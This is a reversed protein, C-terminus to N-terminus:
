GVLSPCTVRLRSAEVAQTLYDLINRKQLKLTQVVTLIREVFRCGEESRNGYSSKRWIVAPRVSREAVNNTPEVGEERAFTWLAEQLKLVRGCFRATKREPGDRGKRLIKEMKKKLSEMHEVLRKRGMKGEQFGAWHRFVEKSLRLGSKGTRTGQKTGGDVLGQLDRILHAWCLQRQGLAIPTYAGFRDSGVIGQVEDGLLKKMADQDRHEQIMYLAAKPSVATWLWRLKGGLFWGTEDANKVGAKQVEQRAEEWAGEISESVEKEKSLLGGLSIPMGLMAGVMEQIKRKSMHFQGNLYGLWAVLRPGFNGHMGEPLKGWTIKGCSPCSRGEIQYETVEPKIAPIEV